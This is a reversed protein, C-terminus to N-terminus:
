TRCAPEYLHDAGVTPNSLFSQHFTKQFIQDIQGVVFFFATLGLFPRPFTTKEASYEYRISQLNKPIHHSQTNHTYRFISDTVTAPLHSNATTNHKTKNRHTYRTEYRLFLSSSGDLRCISLM